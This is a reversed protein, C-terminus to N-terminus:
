DDSPGTVISDGTIGQARRKALRDKQPIVTYKPDAASDFGADLIGFRTLASAAALCAGSAIAIARHKRAFLAGVGGVILLKEALHMKKGGRGQDLPEFELPHMERKMARLSLMDGMVGALALIQVPRIERTPTTIMSMGSAALSASSVFLFPMSRRAGNWAPISSDGLLVATYAALPAGFAAQQVMAPKELARALPRLPGIPLKNGLMRDVENAFTVGAGMGYGTLIWTGLNMPSTPKFTRLMHLFREPRGLDEILGATGLGLAVISGIRANRRLETRGTLDAGLAILGSSGAVGGLFLYVGIPYKWPPAKVIQRGYYSTFQVDEVMSVERSGDLGGRRVSAPPPTGRRKKRRGGERPPRYGDFESLSM